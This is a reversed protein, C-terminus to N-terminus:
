LVPWPYVHIVNFTSPHLGFVLNFYLLLHYTCTHTIHLCLYVVHSHLKGSQDESILSNWSGSLSALSSTAVMVPQLPFAGLFSSPQTLLDVRCFRGGLRMYLVEGLFSSPQTLLDVRCFRGGLRMYLVEWWRDM